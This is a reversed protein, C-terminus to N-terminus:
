ERAAAPAMASAAGVAAEGPVTSCLAQVFATGQHQQLIGGRQQWVLALPRRLHGHSSWRSLASVNGRGLSTDSVSSPLNWLPAPERYRESVHHVAAARFCDPAAASDWGPQLVSTPAPTPNPCGRVPGSAPALIQLAQIVGGPLAEGWLRAFAGPKSQGPSLRGTGRSIGRGQYNRHLFWSIFRPYLYGDDAISQSYIISIIHLSCWSSTSVFQWKAIFSTRAYVLAYNVINKFLYCSNLHMHISPYKICWAPMTNREYKLCIMAGEEILLSGHCHHIKIAFLVIAVHKKRLARTWGFM